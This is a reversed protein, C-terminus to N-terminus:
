DENERRERPHTRQHVAKLDTTEVQTYIQTSAISRHGLMQQIYRIDAGGRLMHTACTHRLTHPSIKKGIGAKKRYKDIVWWLNSNKMKKGKRSLFIYGAATSIGKDGSLDIEIETILRELRPRSVTLYERLYQIAVNGIPVVREQGGKGERVMIKGEELFLDDRKLQSLENVRIGTSYLLELITRDRMGLVTGTDPSDLLRGMEEGTLINRPLGKREKPVELDAAPNYLLEGQKVLYSFFSKLAFLRSRQEAAGYVKGNERRAYYLSLRYANIEQRTVQSLSSIKTERCLWEIFIKIRDYKGRITHRSFDKASLYERFRELAYAMDKNIGKNVASKEEMVEM